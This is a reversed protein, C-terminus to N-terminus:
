LCGSQASSNSGSVHILGASLAGVPGELYACIKWDAFTAGSTGNINSVSYQCPAVSASYCASGASGVAPDQYKRLNPSTTCNYVNDHATTCGAFSTSTGPDVLAIEKLMSNLEALRRADRAGGRASNLSVLVISALIGIIAIVVLLEILTFGRKM